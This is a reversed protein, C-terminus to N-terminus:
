SVEGRKRAQQRALLHSYDADAQFRFIWSGGLVLWVPYSILHHRSATGWNATGLAWMSDLSLAAVLLFWLTDRKRRDADMFHRYTGYFLVVRLVVEALAYLDVFRTVQWPLPALHFLVLIPPVTTALGYLSSTDMEFGYDSAALSSLISRYQDTYAGIEGSAVSRFAGSRELLVSYIKPLALPSVAVLALMLFMGVNKQDKLAWFIGGLLFGLAYVALAQHLSVVAWLSVLLGLFGVPGPRQRLHIVSCIATLYFLCQFPERLTISCHIISSPLAGYLLMLPSAYVELGMQALLWVFFLVSVTFALVSFEEGLFHSVGFTQYIQKLVWSYDTNAQTVPDAALRHFRGADYLNPRLEFFYANCVAACHHLGVVFVSMQLLTSNKRIQSSAFLLLFSFGMLLAGILDPYTM